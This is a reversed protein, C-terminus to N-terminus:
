LTVDMQSTTGQEPSTRKRHRQVNKCEPSTAFHEEKCNCCKPSTHACSKGTSGCQKCHHDSSLHPGACYKCRAANKCRQWHHGFHLCTPCQDSPRASLFPATRRLRGNVSVGKSAVKQEEQTRVAIVVSSYEKGERAEARTLWRPLNALNLKPNFRNIEDRLAEM